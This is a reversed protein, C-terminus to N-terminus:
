AASVPIHMVSRNRVSYGPIKKQPENLKLFIAPEVEYLERIFTQLYFKHNQEWPTSGIFDFMKDTEYKDVLTNAQLKLFPRRKNKLYDNLKEVLAKMIKREPLSSFLDKGENFFYDTFHNFFTSKVLVSHWFSDGKKNLLTTKQDKLNGNSDMFYFRSYEEQPKVNWQFYTCHFLESDTDALEIPIDFFASDAIISSCDLLEKNIYLKKNPYIKFYWAFESKLYPILTSDVWEKSLVSDSFDGFVVKTGTNADKSNQPETPTYNSLNESIMTIEYSFTSNEKKYTTIWKAQKCLKFFTFRGYGNKGRSFRSDISHAVSKRSEYFRKFVVNLEEYVIGDGNDEIDVSIISNYTSEFNINIKVETANADYGNWIYESIARQPTYKNLVKKIGISTLEVNQIQNSM